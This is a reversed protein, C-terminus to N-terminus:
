SLSPVFCYFPHVTPVCCLQPSRLSGMRAPVTDTLHMGQIGHRTNTFDLSQLSPSHILLQWHSPICLHSHSYCPLHLFRTTSTFNFIKITICTVAHTHLLVQVSLPRCQQDCRLLNAPNDCHQNGLWCQLVILFSVDTSLSFHESDKTAGEHSDIMMAYEITKLCM